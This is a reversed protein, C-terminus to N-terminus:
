GGTHCRTLVTSPTGKHFLFNMPPYPSFITMQSGPLLGEYSVSETLAKSKPTGAELVTLFVSM